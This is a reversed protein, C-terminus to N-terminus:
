PSRASHPIRGGRGSKSPFDTPQAKKIMARVDNQQNYISLRRIDESMNICSDGDDIYWSLQENFSQQLLIGYLSPVYPGNLLTRYFEAHRRLVAEAVWRVHEDQHELRAAVAKLIEEPLAPQSGLAQAAARRVHWDQDELRAAVAKLIEEPLASQSGLAQAAARRVHWDQDELRVAVAKLIEKPLASQSCLAEAAARRVYYGEDELRAAVAKLIEKPLASQRGLADVAARRVDEYQDELRAAVAKFIEELLASQGRLVQVAAWRVDRDQHELRAAVAKLIEPLASQSRLAKIAAWRVDKDQDELRAVVAKLIEEPLASRSCLAEAAARRVDEDQDELRAAVAKLIEEPLASQSCLAEAAARRVDEDQDELRAAVAKLIEEPLASRSCLAEAAARRVDEDQDELRATAAKLIEEPLASQSRLAEAAARRVYYGEDELRAAVAKLIEEPLASQRGLADVAARRVDEDQDELRAAVAKLIEEPLASRSCLAKIAARRVNKDQHELRAAVAKLIEEPLASQSCLAEAAARRVDEDQDELRAAVAKLIEEPLASQRGLANVAARRVDEYQDELRAAVAKLIEKPLASQSCLAEAAARRVDEDQHELRAAVAKLIEEPLASQSCLAKIATWRVDKDQDELRATVAKLIEQPITARKTLSKLITRKTDESGEYFAMDLALEPFEAESALNATHRFTCEFLLWKSLRQELNGRIPLDSSVESLCHMVLRQHTPGLLDLPEEEIIHIFLGAQGDADLLGAVFRWLIDYRATYKYTQLFKVPDIASDTSPDPDVNRRSRIRLCELPERAKWQRTFYRAAFYEQFTLHIFHYERDQVKLSPDSTRLFSLRPLTKDLLLEKSKFHKSVASRHESTFDIVDNHLGTFALGELFYVEDPVLDEIGVTEIQFNTVLEGDHKKGLRIVDKKWLKEEIAKYIGTMTDPVARRNFDGWTYCLADLQIPIRMLGQILWHGRLFSQVEDAKKFNVEDTDPNAFAREIYAKVQDPYFGITELVLDLRQHAPLTASPRSTIIVNPQDLLARLFRFMDSGGGLDQSVEDLGDLLFLTRDSKTELAHSMEKALDSRSNSLSFYEHRFLDEFNYGPVLRREDLKLNRLPVWLVRDFLQSWEVWTGQSFEYVIKKCLTTKGAGARGRILIRRPRREGDPGKRPNFLTSLEVQTTKDPTEVKQRAFLSFPSATVDREEVCGIDQGSQEVIALNIYCQDMPLLDGSLREIKLNNATYRKERIWADAQEIPRGERIKQLITQIKGAVVDYDPDEPGFFKNMMVHRRKLPLPEPVIDLTASSRDVLPNAAQLWPSLFKRKLNTKGTEYFNFVECPHDKDQCLQTFRRVLEELAFTSGNASDLLQTVSRNRLSAWAKLRPEAWAAIDQFATGRFPTALFVIGRTAKRLSTYDGQLNDAMVLAKVLIIGGLCSAIFLIPRDKGHGDSALPRIMNQIGALLRRAFEEVTWPTSDSDQFLDAPWDCTFIRAQGVISPLMKSDQLWNVQKKADNRDKWIWTDPSRTDLGHIAIIDIDTNMNKDVPYVQVLGAPRTQQGTNVAM